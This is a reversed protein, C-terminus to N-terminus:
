IFVQRYNGVCINNNYDYKKIIKLVMPEIKNLLADEDLKLVYKGDDTALYCDSDDHEVADIVGQFGEDIQLKLLKIEETLLEITYQCKQLETQPTELLNIYMYCVQNLLVFSISIPFCNDTSPTTTPYIIENTDFIFKIQTPTLKINEVTMHDIKDQWVRENQRITICFHNDVIEYKCEYQEKKPVRLKIFHQM